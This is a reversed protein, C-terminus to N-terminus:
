GHEPLGDPEKPLQAAHHIIIEALALAQGRGFGIWTVPTGFHVIVKGNQHAIALKIEGEDTPHIKGQPHQGTAGLGLDQMFKELHRRNEPTDESAHHSM